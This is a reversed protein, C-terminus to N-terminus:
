GTGPRSGTWSTALRGPPSTLRISSAAARRSYSYRSMSISRRSIVAVILASNTVNRASTAASRLSSTSFTPPWIRSSRMSVVRTIPESMSASCCSTLCSIIPPRWNSWTPEIESPLVCVESTAGGAGSLDSGTADSGTTGLGPGGARDVGGVGKGGSGIAGCGAGSGIAGSGGIAGM